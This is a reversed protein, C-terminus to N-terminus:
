IQAVPYIFQQYKRLIYRDTMGSIFDILLVRDIDNHMELSGNGEKIYREFGREEAGAIKRQTYNLYFDFVKRVISKAEEYRSKIRPDYHIKQEIIKTWTLAMLAACHPEMVLYPKGHNDTIQGYNELNYKIFRNIITKLRIHLEPDLVGLAEKDLDSIKIDMYSLTFQNKNKISELEGVKDIIDSKDADEIDHTLYAMDDAFRIVQGELTLPLNKSFDSYDLRHKRIGDLTEPLFSRGYKSRIGTAIKYSNEPHSWEKLSIGHEKVISDLAEEGAHGFPAHGIDHGLAMAETLDVNLELVRAINKAIRVVEFTHALRTRVHDDQPTTFIQSKHALRRFANSYIIADGERVYISRVNDAEYLEDGTNSRFEALNKLM